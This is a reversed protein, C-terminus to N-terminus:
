ITNLIFTSLKGRVKEPTVYKYPEEPLSFCNDNTAPETFALVTYVDLVKYDKDNNFVYWAPKFYAICLANVTWKSEQM